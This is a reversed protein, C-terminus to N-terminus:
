WPTFFSNLYLIGEGPHMYTTLNTLNPSYGFWTSPSLPSAAENQLAKGMAYVNHWSM